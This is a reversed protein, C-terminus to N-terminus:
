RSLEILKVSTVSYAHGKVLGNPLKNEIQSADLADISCGMFSCREYAKLMIQYLNSPTEAGQIDYYETLGGTFDEM